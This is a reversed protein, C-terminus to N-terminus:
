GTGKEADLTAQKQEEYYERAEEPTQELKTFSTEDYAKEVEPDALAEQVADNWTQVVDEPTEPPLILGWSTVLKVGPYGAEDFTPIDGYSEFKDSEASLVLPRLQDGELGSSGTVAADVHGGVVQPIMDGVGGTVPVYTLELGTAASMENTLLEGISGVGNWSLKGPNAEAEAYFDEFTKWKADQAVLIMNPSNETFAIYEFEDSDFGADEGATETLHVINPMVVNAITCGDPAATSLSNWGQAGDAGDQYTINMKLGLIDELAPQLRRVQQDSGGGPSYPVIVDVNRCDLGEGGAEGAAGGDGGCASLAFSPVAILATLLKWNGM